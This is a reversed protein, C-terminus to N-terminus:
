GGEHGDDISDGRHHHSSQGGSGKSDTSTTPKSSTTDADPEEIVPTGNRSTKAKGAYATGGFAALSFIGLIAALLGASIRNIM